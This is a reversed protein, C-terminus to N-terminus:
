KKCLVVWVGRDGIQLKDWSCISLCGVFVLWKCSKRSHDELYTRTNLLCSGGCKGLRM